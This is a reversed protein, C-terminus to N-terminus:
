IGTRAAALDGDGAAVDVPFDFETHAVAAVANRLCREFSYEFREERGLAWPLARAQAEGDHVADHNGVAAANADAVGRWAGVDHNAYWARWRFPGGFIAAGSEALSRKYGCARWRM